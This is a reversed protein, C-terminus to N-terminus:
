QRWGFSYSGYSTRLNPGTPRSGTPLCPLIKTAAYALGATESFTTRISDGSFPKRNRTRTRKPHRRDPMPRPRLDPTRRAHGPRIRAASSTRVCSQPWDKSACSTKSRNAWPESGDFGNARNIPQKQDQTSPPVIAFSGGDGRRIVRGGRIRQRLETTSCERPLPSASLEIRDPLVM